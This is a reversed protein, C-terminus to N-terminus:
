IRRKRLHLQYIKRATDTYERMIEYGEQEVRARTKNLDEASTEVVGSIFVLSDLSNRESVTNESAIPYPDIVM